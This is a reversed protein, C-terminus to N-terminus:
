IFCARPYASADFFRTGRWAWQAIVNDNRRNELTKTGTFCGVFYGCDPLLTQICHFSVELNLSGRSGPNELAPHSVKTALPRPQPGRSTSATLICSHVVASVHSDNDRRYAGAHIWMHQTFVTYFSVYILLMVHRAIRYIKSLKGIFKSKVCELQWCPGVVHSWGHM